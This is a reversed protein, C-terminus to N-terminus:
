PAGPVPLVLKARLRAFSSPRVANSTFCPSSSPFFMFASARMTPMLTHLVWSSADSLMIITSSASSSSRPLEQPKLRKPKSKPPPFDVSFPTIFVRRSSILSGATQIEM